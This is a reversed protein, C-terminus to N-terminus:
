VVMMMMMMVMMMVVVMLMLDFHVQSPDFGFKRKVAAVDSTGLPAGHV